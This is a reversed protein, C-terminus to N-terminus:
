MKAWAGTHCGVPADATGGTVIAKAACVYLRRRWAPFMYLAGYGSLRGKEPWVLGKQDGELPRRVSTYTGGKEKDGM